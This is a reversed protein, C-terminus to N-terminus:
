QIFVTRIFKRAEDYVDASIDEYKTFTKEVWNNGHGSVDPVFREIEGCELVYINNEKLFDVIQKFLRVCDGQPIVAKGGTKLLKLSNVDRLLSKMQEATKSSIYKDENFLSNIEARIVEQTKVQSNTEKQFNELFKKHQVAIENYCDPIASNLLQKLSDINNILDIDAIIRYDINLEKLLPVIKKLQEKGGVACFLTNQYITLVEHELIASYFKCDSENECLVVQNYFLGNLINTYKLNKDSSIRNISDNDVLNFTNYNDLRDIKIIKVRSSDEELVGRIFDINHTSIFLQKGTSLKVMNKGLIKAQPPHLFTEPEDILFLSHESVIVSSLIAVATRIGDGQNHLDEFSRLKNVKERSNSDIVDAIAQSEGIKYKKILYGDVYDEYVEVSNQFGLDLAQNLSTISDFDKELKQVINLSQNDVVLNFTIPRTLGLRNETSLFSFMAKYYDKEDSINTFSREDFTHSNSDDMWVNYGGYSSKAINREFYDRLKDGSFGTTEYAVDKIIVKSKSTNNLDERLDKLARSKGVNNAGVLLIIDDKNFKIKNDNNFTIEKIVVSPFETSKKM